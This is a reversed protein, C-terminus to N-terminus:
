EACAARGSEMPKTISGCVDSGVIVPMAKPDDATPTLKRSGHLMRSSGLQVPSPRYDVCSRFLKKKARKVKRILNRSPELIFQFRQAVDRVRHRLGSRVKLGKGTLLHTADDITHILFPGNPLWGALRRNETAEPGEWAGASHPVHSYDHNQHLALVADTADIIPMRLRRARGVIWNDWAPRGVAFPPLLTLPSDTRFTMYDIGSAPALVGQQLARSRLSAEWDPATDDLREHIDLNTRRGVLLANRQHVHRAAALFDAFLMIDGNVYTMLENSAIRRVSTFISSLLPTGFANCEVSPLHVAKFESAAEAIGESDGCLVVQCGPLRSWSALANAQIIGVHGIFPKPATFFTIM